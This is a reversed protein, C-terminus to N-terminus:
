RDATSIGADLIENNGVFAMNVIMWNPKDKFLLDSSKRYIEHSNVM